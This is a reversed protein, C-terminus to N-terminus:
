IGRQRLLQSVEFELYDGVTKLFDEETPTTDIVKHQTYNWDNGSDTITDEIYDIESNEYNEYRNGYKYIGLIDKYKQTPDGIKNLGRSTRKYGDNSFDIFKVVQNFDHPTKAKIIYISTQVGANPMFLDGPMKISALLTNEKLIEKNTQIARGSGASDQIIIALLGDKEMVDLAIKSFPMGNESYSFPPNLLAKNGKFNIVRNDKVADFASGKILTTSGDGRLIMNSCALTFMKANLEVGLLQKEKIEKEKKIFLEKNKSLEKDEKALDLMTAMSSVLFGGSGTCLDMVRSDKDIEILQTMLKTIYPPTLVIGNEKGDGLAYKLFESYLEGLTDLHEKDSIHLYINYYIYEFIEKNISCDTDLGGKNKGKTKVKRPRVKDRDEDLKIQSFISMMMERKGEPINKVLLFDEIADYIKKGDSSKLRHDDGKLDNPELGQKMALLMGSVYVVRTDVTIANDNMLVNLAKSHKQLEKLSNELLLHKEEDSLLNEKHFEKFNESKFKNLNTITIRNPANDKSVLVCGLNITLDDKDGEGAIGVCYVHNFLGSEVMKTGYHVAGNMAYDKIFNESLDNIGNEDIKELYKLGYKNEIIVAVNNGPLVSIAFDPRGQGNGHKSAKSLATIYNKPLDQQQYYDVKMEKLKSLVYDDVRVEYKNM